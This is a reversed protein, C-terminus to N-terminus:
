EEYDDDGNTWYIINEPCILDASFEYMNEKYKRKGMDFIQECQWQANQYRGSSLNVYVIMDKDDIRVEDISVSFDKNDLYGLLYDEFNEAIVKFENATEITDFCATIRGETFVGM